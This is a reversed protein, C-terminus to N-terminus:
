NLSPDGPLLIRAVSRTVKLKAETQLVRAARTHAAHLGRRNRGLCDTWGSPDEGDCSKILRALSAEDGAERFTQAQIPAFYNRAVYPILRPALLRDEMSSFIILRAEDDTLEYGEAADLTDVTEIQHAVYREVAERLERELNLGSTHKRSLIMDSAIMDLNSCITAHEGASGRIKMRGAVGHRFIFAFSRGDRVYSTLDSGLGKNTPTVICGGFMKTKDANLVLQMNSTKLGQEGFTNQIGVVLSDHRVPLHKPGTPKPDPLKKLAALTTVADGKNWAIVNVTPKKKTAPM